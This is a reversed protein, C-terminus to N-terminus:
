KATRSGFWFAVVTLTLGVYWEPVVRGTVALGSSVIVLILTVAPRVIGRVRALLSDGPPDPPIDAPTTM